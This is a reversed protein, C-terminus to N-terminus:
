SALVPLSRAGRRRLSLFRQCVRHVTVPSITSLCAMSRHCQAVDVIYCPGCVMNRRLAVANPGLPGWEESSVLASHVSVTPTGVGAAIHSPGSNNGVFLVADQLIRPVESLKSRGILDYVSEVNKVAALVEDAIAREDPGGLLAIRVHDKAVLLDILRAFYEPPWQRLSTGAAPHVVVYDHAWLEAFDRILEASPAPLEGSPQITRRDDDFANGIADILNLLDGAVHNKKDIQHVDREWELAIDLWPFHRDHDYGALLTAGSHQLVHRTDGHKRLDVALDFRRVGLEMALAAYDEETLVKRGLGSRPDFFEFPIIEDIASETSALGVCARAVLASIRSHPFTAKLRRVAPLSTVLDGIHDLKVVLIRRVQDKHGLPHGAYVERITEDDLTYDGVDSSLRPHHFPDGELCLDGWAAIFGASDYADELSARSALEYHTLRVHPTFVVLRGAQHLRLCFDVDNNVVSHGEDFGATEQFVDRRVMMCAGTVALVNRQSVALGFYAPDDGDAFRFAHRFKGPEQRSMFMGAHQVKGDPYLLQAGVVGVEPRAAESVLTLLWDESLVEIDDNLFLLYEGSAAAAGLNNLRSWNFPEDVSVVVDAHERFWSKWHRTEDTLLAARLNDVLVIEYPVDRTLQRISELCRVVYGKAGISPIIISVLGPRAVSRRVRHLFPAAGVEVTADLGRREVHEALARRERDASERLQGMDLVLTPVHCISRARNTATLVAAYDGLQALTPLNVAMTEVLARTAVWARGIYNQALVLDPSWDPKLFARVGPLGGDTRRDDGYIFDPREDDTAALAFALLGDVAVVDGADLVGVMDAVTAAPQDHIVGLRGAVEPLSEVVRAVLEGVNEGASAPVLWLRWEPYGQRVFSQVTALVREVAGDAHGIHLAFDCVPLPGRSGIIDLITRVEAYSIKRRLAHLGEEADVNEIDVTFELESTLGATDTVVVRILSRGGKLRRAPVFLAFGSSLANPFAPFAAAVDERRTGYYARGVKGGDIFVEVSAVGARAIAWGELHFSGSVIRRAHGSEIQMGDVVMRIDDSLSPPPAVRESPETAVTTVAFKKATGDVLCVTLEVTSEGKFPGSLQATFEFGSHLADPFDPFAQGVDPRPLDRRATGQERGGNDIYLKVVKSASVIWGSVELRGTTELVAIDSHFFVASTQASQEPLAVPSPTDQDVATVIERRANILSPPAPRRQTGADRAIAEISLSAIEGELEPRIRVVMSFGSLAANPYSPFASQIDPRPQEAVTTAIREDGIFLQIAVLPSLSVVWGSITLLGTEDIESREVEMRIPELPAPTLLSRGLVFVGEATLAKLSLDLQRQTDPLVLEFGAREPGGRLHDPMAADVDPRQVRTAGALSYIEGLQDELWVDSDAGCVAWGVAILRGDARHEIRELVGRAGYAVRSVLPIRCVLDRWPDTDRQEQLALMARAPGLTGDSFPLTEADALRLPTSEARKGGDEWELRVEGEAERAVLVFGLKGGLDLSFHREVDPREVALSRLDLPGNADKLRVDLPRTSWGVIAVASGLRCALDVKLAVPAVGSAHTLIAPQDQVDLLRVEAGAPGSNRKKFPSRLM